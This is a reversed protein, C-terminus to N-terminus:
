PTPSATYGPPPVNQDYTVSALVSRADEVARDDVGGTGRLQLVYADGYHLWLVLYGVTSGSTFSIFAAQDKGVACPQASVNITVTGSSMRTLFASASVGPDTPLPASLSITTPSYLYSAPATLLYDSDTQSTDLATWGPPVSIVTAFTDHVPQTLTGSPTGTCGQQAFANTPPSAQTSPSPSRVGSAVTDGPNQATPVYGCGVAALLGFLAVLLGAKRM